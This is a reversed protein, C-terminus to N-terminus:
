FRLVRRWITIVHIDKLQTLKVSEVGCTSTTTHTVFYVCCCNPVPIYVCVHCTVGEIDVVLILTGLTHFCWWLCPSRPVTSAPSGSVTTPRAEGNYWTLHRWIGIVPWRLTSASDSKIKLCVLLTRHILPPHLVDDETHLAHHSWRLGITSWVVIFVVSM